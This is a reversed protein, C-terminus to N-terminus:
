CPCHSHSVSRHLSFKMINTVRLFSNNQGAQWLFALLVSLIMHLSLHFLFWVLKGCLIGCTEIGRVTNSEALLLFKHCLDRSLVVCRLGEIVLDLFCFLSFFSFVLRIGWGELSNKVLLKPDIYIYFFSILLHEVRRIKLEWFYVNVLLFTFNYKAYLNNYLRTPLHM